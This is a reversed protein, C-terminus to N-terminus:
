IVYIVILQSLVTVDWARIPSLCRTPAEGRDPGQWPEGEPKEKITLTVLCGESVESENRCSHSANTKCQNM